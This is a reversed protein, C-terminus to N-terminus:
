KQQKSPVTEPNLGLLDFARTQIPTPDTLMDFASEPSGPIYCRNRCQTALEQLLTKFSHLPFGERSKRAAKKEKATESIQAPGVPDRTRRLQALQEDEFLLPALAERMHWEVYYALMCLFIHARVHQETRHYIPRVRLDVGKICRFAREVQSLGKYSRVADEASLAQQAVSTRVIYVGDLAREKDIAEHRREYRFRGGEISLEYHKAMKHRDLVKGAKLAIEKDSLLTRTRRRAERVIKDLAQETAALLEERKRQREDKLLPNFCAVLREGPFDPSAIECLNQEDFLSMQLAGSDALKRIDSSRLASIWGLEPYQGLRRIQKHTLMGRDGVLVVRELEFRERLKDVQQPVTAPDGTNGPHVEVAVPRGQRDALLGYVICPLDKRGDRNHGYCALPCHHGEYASSTIDYLAMAGEELHRGALKKEIRAQRAFLWDLARYVEDVTADAVGMEGALTSQRWLRVSALKSAPFLLREVLLAVIVDRERCPRSALLSDVGLKRLVGLVAAVHGHPTSRAVGFVEEVPALKKGKLVLRLLEVQERPLSSLNAITRKKVKGGERWGERLLVAPPSNRNPVIDIFM